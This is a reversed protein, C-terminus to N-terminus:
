KDALYANDDKFKIDASSGKGFIIPANRTSEADIEAIVQNVQFSSPVESKIDIVTVVLKKPKIKPIQTLKSAYLSSAM